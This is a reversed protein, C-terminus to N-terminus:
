LPPAEQSTIRRYRLDALEEATFEEGDVTVTGEDAWGDPTADELEQICRAYEAYSLCM